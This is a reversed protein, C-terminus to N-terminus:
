NGASQKEVSFESTINKLKATLKKNEKKLSKKVRVHRIKKQKLKSEVKSLRQILEQNKKFLKESQKKLENVRKESEAEIEAKKTKLIKHLKVKEDQLNQGYDKEREAEATIHQAKLEEKMEQYTKKEKQSAEQNVQLEENERRLKNMNENKMRTLTEITDNLRRIEKQRDIETRYDEEIMSIDYIFSSQFYQVIDALRQLAGHSSALIAAPTRSDDIISQSLDPSNPRRLEQDRAEDSSMDRHKISGDRVGKTRKPM